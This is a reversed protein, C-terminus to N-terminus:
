RTQLPSPLGLRKEFEEYRADERLPAFVPDLGLYVVQGWREDLARDLQEFADDMQGLHAYLIMPIVAPVYVRESVALITALATRAGGVNGLAAQARGAALENIPVPFPRKVREREAAALAEDPRGAETM